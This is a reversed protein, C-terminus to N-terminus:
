QTELVNVRATMLYSLIEELDVPSTRVVKINAEWLAELTEEYQSTVIKAPTGPEVAVLGETSSDPARDVWLTRWQDLLMDKEFLGLVQGDNVMLIYDAIRRVEDMVHTAFVITREGDGMASALEEMMERRAFPDVGRTPEDLLLLEANTALTLSFALRRQMGSSLTNFPKNGPIEFRDLLRAFRADDWDPYWFSIFQSLARADMDEYGAPDEPLYALRQKIGIDDQDYHQFFVQIDGQEPQAHNMLLRFFTTKGSGNPGVVAVVYGEGIDIDFPGLRFDGYSKCVGRMSIVPNDHMQDELNMTIGTWHKRSYEAFSPIPFGQVARLM